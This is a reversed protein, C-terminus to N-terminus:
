KGKDFTQTFKKLYEKRIDLDEIKDFMDFIFEQEKSIVCICNTKIPQSDSQIEDQSEDDQTNIDDNGLNNINQDDQDHFFSQEEDSSNLFIHM